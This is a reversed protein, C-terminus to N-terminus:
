IVQSLLCFLDVSSHTQKKGIGPTSKVMFVGACLTLGFVGRVSKPFKGRSGILDSNQFNTYYLEEPNKLIIADTDYNAADYGWHNMFRMVTLRLVMAVHFGKRHDSEITRLLSPSLLAQPEVLVSDFGHEVLMSHLPQDMSLILVHSLLPRIHVVASVLWNLLVDKFKSDCAVISIPANTSHPPIQYLYNRLTAMWEHTILDYIPLTLRPIPLTFNNQIVFHYPQYKMLYSSRLNKRPDETTAHTSTIKRSTIPYESTVERAKDDHYESKARNDDIDVHLPPPTDVPKVMWCVFTLTGGCILLLLLVVHKKRKLM